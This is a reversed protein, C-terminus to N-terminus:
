YGKDTSAKQENRQGRGYIWEIRKAADAAIMELDLTHLMDGVHEGHVLRQGADLVACRM